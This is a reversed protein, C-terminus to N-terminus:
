VFFLHITTESISGYSTSMGGIFDEKAKEYVKHVREFAGM